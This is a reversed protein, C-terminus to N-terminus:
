DPLPVEFKTIATSIYKRMQQFGTATLEVLLLRGDDPPRYRRLLGHKALADIYRLGTSQPVNAGLCLSTTSIRAGRVKNIFLDLLMDWAPEGFLTHDFFNARHIRTRYMSMAITGLKEDSFGLAPM